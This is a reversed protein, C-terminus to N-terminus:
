RRKVLFSFISHQAVKLDLSKPTQMNKYSKSLGHTEILLNNLKKM